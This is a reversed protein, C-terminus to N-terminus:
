DYELIEELQRKTIAGTDDITEKIKEIKDNAQGLKGKYARISGGLDEIVARHNRIKNLRKTKLKQCDELNKKLKNNEEILQNGRETLTTYLEDEKLHQNEEHLENLLKTFENAMNESTCPYLMNDNENDSVTWQQMYDDFYVDFRKYERLEELRKETM